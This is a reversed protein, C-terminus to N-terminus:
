EQHACRGSCPLPWNRDTHGLLVQFCKSGDARDARQFLFALSESSTEPRADNQVEDFHLNNWIETIGEEIEDIPNLERDKLIGKLLGFVSFDCLVIDPSYPLRSM